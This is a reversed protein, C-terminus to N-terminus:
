PAGMDSAIGMAKGPALLDELAARDLGAVAAEYTVIGHDLVAVREGVSLAAGLHQEVLLVGMGEHRLRSLLDKVEAVLGPALGDSPEDLLLLRPNGLLARGIALMQQEGGSLQGGRHRRRQALRPFLEYIGDPTWPGPRRGAIALHEDVSLTPFIRRGQPVYGVGARSVATTGAGTMDNGALRIRGARAPVMGMITQMLTTKGVGNRGVVAVAEGAGVVLEVGALVTGSGYGAVLGDVELLTTM